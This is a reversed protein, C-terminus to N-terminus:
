FNVNLGLIYSKAQPYIGPDVGYMNNSFGGESGVEPDFGTYKTLTIMNQLTFYLHLKSINKGIQNENFTYGFTLNKMRAFSGDEVYLTSYTRNNNVDTVTVRPITNGGSGPTWRDLIEPSNNYDTGQMIKGGLTLGNFIKNGQSGIWLMSVDFGKYEASFNLSYTLAPFSSGANFRDDASIKGDNNRDEFKIDGPQAYPQIKDGNKDVYSDVENQDQFLGMANLVYFHGIPEGQAIRGVLVNKYDSTFIETAGAVGLTELKNVVHSVNAAIEYKFENEQSRYSVGMDFGKNSVEGSNRYPAQGVGLSSVLPVQVLIDTTLKNFYDATLSVKGKLLSVDIGIDTQTTVEWKIDPNSIRNQAMATFPSGGLTPSGVTTITSYYEYNRIKDNGLQGWSARLKLDSFLHTLDSFFPEKSIRWGGSVSPFIGWRKDEPFKSSGDARINAAFLYKDAFEYSVRGFYSLLTYDDASGTPHQPFSGANNFYRLAPDQNSFDKATGTNTWEYIGSEASVGALAAVHHKEITKDFNLTNNWIWTNNTTYLEYLSNQDLGRGGNKAIAVFNKNKGFGYNYAFDTKLTFANLFKYDFYINGVIAMNKQINDKSNLSAVPNPFDGKPLGYIENAEDQWVPTNRMNFMSASLVGDYDGRTDVIKQNTSVISINEGFSLNKLIEHQSNFRVNYRKFNSNMVIGNDNLYGLSFSFNSKQTGGRISLDNSSIYGSRLVEDYWDTRTVANEPNNYYDWVPETTPTGDNTLAEKHIMNREEATLSSPLKWATQIGQSTNFSVNTTEGRKGKKTTVIVVGNAGRSGYIAASAADKIVQISEIDAPNLGNISGIIGDVVYLPSNDNISGMGRVRIEVGGGPEGSNQIVTVGSLHGQLSHSVSQSLGKLKDPKITSIAGTIDAKKQTGYGIVVIEDLNKALSILQIDIQNRGQLDINQTEFGIYSFILTSNADPVTLAFVGNGDTVTGQMTGKIQVSVGPLPGVDDKVTGSVKTQALASGISLFVMCLTCLLLQVEKKM